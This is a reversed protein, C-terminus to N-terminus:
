EPAGSAGEAELDYGQRGTIRAKVMAGPALDDGVLIVASDVEPADWVTRAMWQDIEVPLEVLVETEGGVLGDLRAFSVAQQAEIVAQARQAALEPAVAGDLGAARTDAEPSYCFAGLHAFRGEAVFDVLRKFADDTEGPFGTMVTTRVAIDPVAGALEDLLGRIRASAGGAGRGMRELVIDDIHQIPLDLYPCIKEETAMVDILSPEVHEPHAYLLRIWRLGDIRCLDKLLPTLLGKEGMDTGYAAVDQAIINLEIAGLEVLSRAEAVLEDMPRSKMPGRILPITCYACRNDCGESVKLYSSGPSGTPLRAWSDFDIQATAVTVGLLEGLVAPLTNREDLSLLANVQPVEELIEDGVRSVMCGVAVLAKLSGEERAGALEALFQFSEDRAAGIFGCTNVVVGDADAPDQALLFGAEALGALMRESDVTNKACGLSILCIVPPAKGDKKKKKKKTGKALRGGEARADAPCVNPVPNGDVDLPVVPSSARHGNDAVSNCRRESFHSM